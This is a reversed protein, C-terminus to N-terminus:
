AILEKIVQAPEVGTLRQDLGQFHYTFKKRAYIPLDFRCITDIPL